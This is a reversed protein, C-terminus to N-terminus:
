IEFRHRVDAFSPNDRHEPKMVIPEGDLLPWDIGLTPDNWAIGIGHEESYDNDASIVLLTKDTLHICGHAFGRAAFLAPGGLKLLTKCHRLYTDSQPRMDVCVWLVDGSLPTILKAEAFPAAQIHLGKITNKKETHQLILQRWEVSIGAQEFLIKDYPKELYGRMDCVRNFHVNALGQLDRKEFNM